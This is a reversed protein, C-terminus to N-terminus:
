GDTQIRCWLASDGLSLLSAPLKNAPAPQWKEEGCAPKRSLGPKSHWDQIFVTLTQSVGLIMCIGDLKMVKIGHKQVIWCHCRIHLLHALNSFPDAGWHLSLLLQSHRHPLWHSCLTFINKRSLTWNYCWLFAFSHCLVSQRLNIIDGGRIIINSICLSVCLFILSGDIADSIVFCM